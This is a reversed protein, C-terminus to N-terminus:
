AGYEIISKQGKYNALNSVRVGVKRLEEGREAYRDFLQMAVQFIEEPDVSRYALSRSKLSEEFDSYRLKITVVKFAFGQKKLEEGVEKSMESMARAIEGRDGTDRAFTRERGISKVEWNEQVESDDRGNAYNYLEAGYSRFREVLVVPNAKALDGITRYGFDELVKGMKRGVGYLDGVPKKSLFEAADDEKVVRIGNPKATESAMKAVLKNTSIGISCPLGVKEKMELKLKAALALAEDYNKVRKSVDIFAEDISVQEFKDAFRKILDMVKKSMAEYYEFDEPIYIADKKIRYAMSIPMGSRLGFKRAAYNATMVVGRGEGQKPDSGVVAPKEKIEPRRLEECAVYFYDMDVLLILRM